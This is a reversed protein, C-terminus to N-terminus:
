ALAPAPAPFQEKAREEAARFAELLTPGYVWWRDLKDRDWSYASAGPPLRPQECQLAFGNLGRTQILDAVEPAPAPRDLAIFEAPISADCDQHIDEFFEEVTDPMDYEYAMIAAFWIIQRVRFQHTETRRLIVEIPNNITSM